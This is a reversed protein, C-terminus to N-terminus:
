RKEILHILRRYAVSIPLVGLRHPLHNCEILRPLATYASPLSYTYPPNCRRYSQSVAM